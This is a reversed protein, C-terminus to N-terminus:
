TLYCLTAKENGTLRCAFHLVYQAIPLTSQQLRLANYRTHAWVEAVQDKRSCPLLKEVEDLVAAMDLQPRNLINRISPPTQTKLDIQDPM